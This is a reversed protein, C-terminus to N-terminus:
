GTQEERIWTCYWIVPTSVVVDHRRRAGDGDDRVCRSRLRLAIATLGLSKLVFRAM